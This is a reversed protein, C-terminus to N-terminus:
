SIRAVASAANQCWTMMEANVAFPRPLNRHRRGVAARRSGRSRALQQNESVDLRREMRPNGANAALAFSRNGAHPVPTRAIFPKVDRLKSRTGVHDPELHQGCASATRAAFPPWCRDAATVSVRPAKIKPTKRVLSGACNGAIAASM